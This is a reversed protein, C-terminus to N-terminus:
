GIMVALPRPRRGRAALRGRGNRRLRAPPLPDRWVRGYRLRNYACTSAMALAYLGAVVPVVYPHLPSDLAGLCPYSLGLVLTIASVTMWIATVVPEGKRHTPTESPLPHPRAPSARRTM